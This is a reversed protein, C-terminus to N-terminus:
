GFARSGSCSIGHFTSEQTMCLLDVRAPVRVEHPQLSQQSSIDPSTHHGGREVDRTLDHIPLTPVTCCVQLERPRPLVLTLMHLLNV